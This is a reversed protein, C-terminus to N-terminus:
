WTLRHWAFNSHIGRRAAWNIDESWVSVPNRDDTLVPVGRTDPEFRNDWAHNREVVVWHRYPFPISDYPKGLADDAIDVDRDSAVLIVNGLTNPPESTPMVFVHQFQTEVTATLSRILIDHWERTETNIALVGGPNLRSKVLQFMERTVLHFPISSSGFADMIILDWTRDTAVLFRRGDMVSVNASDVSLSFFQEGLEVVVPDIEVSTVEWGQRYYSQAVSGGGLGILLMSGPGDFFHRPVDMVMAYPFVTNGSQRDVITHTGGDILLIRSDEWDLVRLDAYPSQQQWTLEVPRGVRGVPLAGGGACLAAPILLMAAANAAGPRRARFAVFAAGFLAAACAAILRNIGLVPILYFGTALAGVVSAVTSVAYINGASRGVEEIHEARLRIAYPSVMGLLALPPFFLLTAAALVAARLGLPEVAGIVPRKLWITALLWLGALALVTGLRTYRPGRDAWRGGLAYGVSLAALTVTILASWLFLSVGYFPGLVRTGAIEITLVVAGSISVLIYLPLHGRM